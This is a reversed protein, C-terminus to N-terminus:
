KCEDEWKERGEEGEVAGKLGGCGIRVGEEIGNEGVEIGVFGGERERRGGPM